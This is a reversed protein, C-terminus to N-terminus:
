EVGACLERAYDRYIPLSANLEEILDFEPPMTSRVYHLRFRVAHHTIINSINFGLQPLKRAYHQDVVMPHAIAYRGVHNGVEVVHEGLHVPQRPNSPHPSFASFVINNHNKKDALLRYHVPTMMSHGCEFLFEDDLLHRAQYPLGHVGLGPDQFFAVEAFDVPLSALVLEAERLQGAANGALVLRSFGGYHLSVLAWYLLPHGNLGIFAKSLPVNVGGGKLRSAQGGVAILAQSIRAV